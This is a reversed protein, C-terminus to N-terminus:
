MRVLRSIGTMVEPKEIGLYDLITPAIDALKGPGELGYHQSPDILVLPVSVTTHTTHPNGNEDIMQEINGHDSTLFVVGGAAMVAKLIRGVHLEIAEVAAIAASIVGTHGVMDANAINMIIADHAGAEVAAICRDTVEAISMEPKLDYTAVKPSPVLLRDEGDFAEEKGGNFFYTVHAYKETEALRLQKMGARSLIEPLSDKVNEPSYLVPFDFSEEYQTMSCVKLGLPETPFEDFHPDTFIRVIQRMRDARFNLTLLSDGEKIIADADLIKPLVFEDGVDASYSAKLADVPNPCPEGEGRAYLQYARENRDWRKDRDMAYYRGCLTAISGIGSEDMMAQVKLIFDIGANPATDRGDMLAHYYVKKFDLDNCAQLIPRIHDIHAHVGGESCLGMLHLAKGASKTASILEVLVPHNRLAGSKVDDNIRVLVQRVVRGAGMNMHGVESNGMIGDPLGVAEGSTQLQIQPYDTLLQDLIPTKAMKIANGEKAERTGFGDLILLIFQLM